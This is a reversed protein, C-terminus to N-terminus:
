FCSSKKKSESVKGTCPPRLGSDAVPWCGQLQHPNLTVRLSMKTLINKCLGETNLGYVRSLTDGQQGSTVELVSRRFYLGIFIFIRAVNQM